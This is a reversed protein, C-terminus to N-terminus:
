TRKFQQKDIKLTKIKSDLTSPPIGLKVAAGSLGSVRGRTEALATEILTKENSSLKENLAPRAVQHTQSKSSLWHEDISFTENECLILSREIVNQLERINGPWPYSRLLDLTKSEISKISKGAKAAYRAIFYDILIPIDAQRDRLPPTEIPFVNLRYYLDSRFTGAAVAAQLDRNTAAILRVDARVVQNGGVREFEREQLVRLLAIQTESPLEGIEDLFLSGGEALEFRGLRRQSAGTFAGKEHGFLESSILSQPISACNVAVFARAARASRKHIARAILEKGTGTEGTILVTSDTPAVKTVRSIVAHLAPSVGVIEEFMSAHDIEERLAVNENRTRDEARKRDEIDTGTSYWRTLRGQEDRFPNSRTLFWRYQGDKGLAREEIQFPLGRLLATRRFDHLREFDEPHIIRSRLDARTVDDITLGTYDLVAKNAYIVTGDPDHVIIGAGIADTIRRLEREDQRLKEEAQKRDEIDTSTAYWKVVNGIDDRLPEARVFFWRFAGDRGRLRTEIEGGEGTARAQLFREMLPPLDDPHVAQQWEGGQSEELSRGTYEYWRQNHFENSGDPLYGSVIAPITDIIRRLDVEAGRAENLIQQTSPLSDAPKPSHVEIAIGYWRVIDGHDDRSPGVRILFRRHEGTGSRLRAEMESWQGSAISDRWWDTLRNLDDPHVAAAWGWGLARDLPLGTYELWRRNFFEVFGNPRCRWAMSPLSDM